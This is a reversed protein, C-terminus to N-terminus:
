NGARALFKRYDDLKGLKKAHRALCYDDYCYELTKSVGQTEKTTHRVPITWKLTM